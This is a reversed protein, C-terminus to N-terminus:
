HFLDLFTGKKPCVGQMALTQIEPRDAYPGGDKACQSSPRAFAELESVEEVMRAGSFLQM